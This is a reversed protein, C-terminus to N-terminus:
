LPQVTTTGRGSPTVLSEIVREDGSVKVGNQIGDRNVISM